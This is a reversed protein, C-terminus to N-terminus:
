GDLRALLSYITLYAVAGVIEWYAGVM